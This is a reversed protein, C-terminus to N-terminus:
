YRFEWVHELTWALIVVLRACGGGQTGPHHHESRGSYCAGVGVLAGEVLVVGLNNRKGWILSAPTLTFFISFFLPRQPPLSPSKVRRIRHSVLLLGEQCGCGRSCGLEWAGASSRNECFARLMCPCHLWLTTWKAPQSLALKSLANLFKYLSKVGSNYLCM